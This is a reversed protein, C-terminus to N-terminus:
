SAALKEFAIGISTHDQWMVQAVREPGTVASTLRIEGELELGAPVRLKAGGDSIDRIICSYTVGSSTRIKATEVLRRRESRRAQSTKMAPSIDLCDNKLSSNAQKFEIRAASRRGKGCATEAAAISSM